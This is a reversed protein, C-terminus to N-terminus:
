IFVPQVDRARPVSSGVTVQEGDLVCVSLTLKGRYSVTLIETISM